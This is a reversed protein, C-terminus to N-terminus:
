RNTLQRRVAGPRNTIIAEVGLAAMAAIESPNDVTWANVRLGRQRWTRLAPGDVLKAEPHVAALSWLPLRYLERTRVSQGAEFLYGLPVMGRSASQFRLLQFPDFSSVLTLGSGSLRGARELVKVVAMALGDDLPLRLYDTPRQLSASKLEVNVLAQPGLARFVADLTPIREGGGLDFRRLEGLPTERVLQEAGAQGPALRELTDDHVVVVEGSGCRMVDLEVGDAGQQMAARFAVITNEPHDHSAGRHGLVLPRSPPEGSSHSASQREKAIVRSLFSLPQM